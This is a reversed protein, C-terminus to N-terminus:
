WMIKYYVDDATVIFHLLIIQTTFKMKILSLFYNKKDKFLM